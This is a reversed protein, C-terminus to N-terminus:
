GSIQQKLYPQLMDVDLEAVIKSLILITSTLV